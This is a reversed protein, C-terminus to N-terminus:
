ALQQQSFNIQEELIFLASLYPFKYQKTPANTIVHIELVTELTQLYTKDENAYLKKVKLYYKM